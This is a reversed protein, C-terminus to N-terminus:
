ELNHIRARLQVDVQHNRSSHDNNQGPARSAGSMTPIWRHSAQSMGKRLLIPGDTDQPLRRQRASCCPDALVTCHRIV